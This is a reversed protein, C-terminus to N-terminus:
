ISVRVSDANLVHVSIYILIYKMYVFSKITRIQVARVKIKSTPTGPLLVKSNM